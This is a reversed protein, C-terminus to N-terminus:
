LPEVTHYYFLFISFFDNIIIIIIILLVATLSFSSFLTFLYWSGSLSVLYIRLYLRFQHLMGNMNPAYYVTGLFPIKPTNIHVSLQVECLNSESSSYNYDKFIDYLM